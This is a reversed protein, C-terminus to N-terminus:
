QSYQKAAMLKQIVPPFRIDFGGKTGVIMHLNGYSAPTCVVRGWSYVKGVRSKVPFRIRLRTCATWIVRKLANTIVM